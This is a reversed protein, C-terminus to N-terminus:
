KKLLNNKFRTRIEEKVMLTIRRIATADLGWIARGGESLFEALKANSLKSDKRSGTPGITIEAKKKDIKLVEISDLYQGTVTLNSRAPSFFQGTDPVGQDRSMKQAAKHGIGGHNFDDQRYNKRIKKVNEGHAQKWGKRTQVYNPSLAKIKEEKGTAMTKGSRAKAQIRSRAFEAIEPLGNLQLDNVAERINAFAKRIQADSKSAM